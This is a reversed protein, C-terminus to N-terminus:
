HHFISDAVGGLRMLAGRPGSLILHSTHLSLAQQWQVRGKPVPTWSCCHERTWRKVNENDEAKEVKGTGM